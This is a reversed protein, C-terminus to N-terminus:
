SIIGNDRCFALMEESHFEKANDMRLYRIKRGTFTLYEKLLALPNSRTKTNYLSVYETTKDVMLLFWRDGSRGIQCSDAFDARVDLIPEVFTSVPTVVVPVEPLSLPLLPAPAIIPEPNIV